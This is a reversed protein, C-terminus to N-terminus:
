VIRPINFVGNFLRQVVRRDDVQSIVRERIVEATGM